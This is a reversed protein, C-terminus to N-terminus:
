FLNFVFPAIFYCEVFSVTCIVALSVIIDRKGRHSPNVSRSFCYLVFFTLLFADPALILFLVLWAASRYSCLICAILLGYSFSVSTILVLLIYRCYRLSLFSLLLVGFRLLVLVMISPSTVPLSAGLSISGSRDSIFFFIGSIVGFAWFVCVLIYWLLQSLSLSGCRKM